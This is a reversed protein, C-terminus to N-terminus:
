ETFIPMLPSGSIRDTFTLGHKDQYTSIVQQSGGTATVKAIGVDFLRSPRPHASVRAEPISEGHNSRLTNVRVLVSM